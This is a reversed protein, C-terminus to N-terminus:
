KLYAEELQKMLKEFEEDTMGFYEADFRKLIENPITGTRIQSTATGPTTSTTTTTITTTTTTISTTSKTPNTTTYGRGGSSLHYIVNRSFCSDQLMNCRQINFINCVNCRLIDHTKITVPLYLGVGSIM